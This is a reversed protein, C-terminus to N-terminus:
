EESEIKRKCLIGWIFAIAFTGVVGLNCGTSPSILKIYKWLLFVIINYPIIVKVILMLLANIWAKSVYLMIKDNDKEM